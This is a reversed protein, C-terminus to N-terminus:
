IPTSLVGPYVVNEANSSVVPETQKVFENM